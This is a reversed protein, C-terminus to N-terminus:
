PSTEVDPSLPPDKDDSSFLLKPIVDEVYSYAVLIPTPHTHINSKLFTLREYTSPPKQCNPLFPNIKNEGFSRISPDALLQSSIGLYWRHTEIRTFLACWVRDSHVNIEKEARGGPQWHAWQWKWLAENHHLHYM